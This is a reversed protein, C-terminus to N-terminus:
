RCRLPTRRPLRFSRCRSAERYTPNSTATPKTISSVFGWLDDMETYGNPNIAGTPTLNSLQTFSIVPTIQGTLNGSSNTALMRLVDFDMVMVNPQNPTIVLPPNLTITPSPLRLRQRTLYAGPPSLMPDYAAIQALEFSLNAQNYSGAQVPYNYLVTTFDRLQQLNLRIEPAFAPTTHHLRKTGSGDVPTLSLNQIVVNASIANCLPVDQVITILTGNGPNPTTPSSSSCSTLIGAFLTM